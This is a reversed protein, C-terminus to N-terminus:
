ATRRKKRREFFVAIRLVAAFLYTGVAAAWLFWALRDVLAFALVLYAFDRNTLLTAMLRIVRPSEKLEEPTRKLIYRYVVLACLGFGALLLVLALLYHSHWTSRFLGLAIGAFVAVHVINDVTYDLSQGFSSEQLKLRAVEGDAGDMIVCLLFLLAGFMRQWYAAWSLLFAGGLGIAGNVLTIQNATIRTHVIRRSAFLSIRRNVHRSLFSDDAKIRSACSAILAAECAKRQEITAGAPCPLSSNGGAQVAESLISRAAAHDFSLASLLPLLRDGSALYVGEGAEKGGGVRYLQNPGIPTAVLDSLSQDVVQDAKMVVVKTDHSLPLGQVALEMARPDRAALLAGPPLLHDVAERVLEVHGLLWLPELGTKRALLVLRRVSPIGFVPALGKEDLVLIICAAV